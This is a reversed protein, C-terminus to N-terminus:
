GSRETVYFNTRERPIVPLHHCRVTSWAFAFSDPSSHQRPAFATPTRPPLAPNRLRSTFTRDPVIGRMFLTLEGVRHQLDPPRPLASIAARDKHRGPRPV